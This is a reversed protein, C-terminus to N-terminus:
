EEIFRVNEKFATATRERARANHKCEIQEFVITEVCIVTCLIFVTRRRNWMMKRENTHQLAAVAFSTGGGGGCLVLSNM